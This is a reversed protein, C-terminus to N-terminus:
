KVIRDPRAGITTPKGALSWSHRGFVEDDRESFDARHHAGRSEMRALAGELILRAVLLLNATELKELPLSPDPEWGSEISDLVALADDLGLGRRVIGAGM